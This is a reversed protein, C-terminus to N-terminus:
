QALVSFATRWQCRDSHLLAGASARALAAGQWAAWARCMAESFSDDGLATVYDVQARDGLLRSLYVATNLTDGGFSQRRCAAAIRDHMRRDPRRTSPEHPSLETSYRALFFTSFPEIVRLDDDVLCGSRWKDFTLCPHSTGFSIIDGVQLQCGPAVTMFAHQDM